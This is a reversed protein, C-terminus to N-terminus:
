GKSAALEFAREQATDLAESLQDQYSALPTDDNPVLLPAGEVFVMRSFPKNLQMRDWTRLFKRRSTTMALPIIPLGSKRALLVVGEGVIRANKPVDATLAVSHGAKLAKLMKLFARAGGKKPDTKRTSGSGKILPMGLRHLTQGIMQGDGHEAVLASPHLGRAFRFPIVFNQGHWTAYIVPGGLAPDHASEIMRRSTLRVFRFYSALLWCGAPGRVFSKIAEKL